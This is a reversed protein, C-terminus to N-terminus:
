SLRDDASDESRIGAIRNLYNTVPSLATDRLFPSCQLSIQASEETLVHSLLAHSARSKGIGAEGILIVVQGQGQKATAWCQMLLSLEADREVIVGQGDHAAFREHAPNRGSIAYVAKTGPIGKFSRGGLPQL